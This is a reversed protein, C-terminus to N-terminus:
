LVLLFVFSRNNTSSFILSSFIDVQSIRDHAHSKFRPDFMPVYKPGIYYPQWPQAYHPRFLPVIKDDSGEQKWAQYNTLFQCTPCVDAQFPQLQHDNWLLILERKNQPLPVSREITNSHIEFSPIVYLTRNFDEDTNTTQTYFSVLHHFLDPAPIVDIDLMLMYQVTPPATNLRATNRLLNSPYPTSDTEDTHNSYTLQQCSVAYKM